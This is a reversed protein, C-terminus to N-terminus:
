GKKSKSDHQNSKSTQQRALFATVITALPIGGVVAAVADHGNMALKYASFLGVAAITVASLQGLVQSLGNVLLTTKEVSQTHAGEREAM